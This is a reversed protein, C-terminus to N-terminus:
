IFYLGVFTFLSVVYLFILSNQMSNIKDFVSIEDQNYKLYGDNTNENTLCKFINRSINRSINHMKIWNKCESQFTCFINKNKPPYYVIIEKTNDLNAIATVFYNGFSETNITFNRINFCQTEKYTKLRIYENGLSYYNISM